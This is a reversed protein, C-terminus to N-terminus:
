ETGANFREHLVFALVAAKQRTTSWTKFPEPLAANYSAQNADIWDDVDDVAVLIANRVTSDGVDLESSLIKMVNIWARARDAIGMVAM